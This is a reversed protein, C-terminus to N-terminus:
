EESYNNYIINIYFFLVTIYISHMFFGFTHHWRAYTEFKYEILQQITKTKFIELEEAENLLGMFNVDENIFILEKTAPDKVVYLGIQPLLNVSYQIKYIKSSDIASMDDELNADITEFEPFVTEYHQRLDFLSNNYPKRVYDKNM